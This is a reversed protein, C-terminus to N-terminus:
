QIIIGAYVNVKKRYPRRKLKQDCLFACYVRLAANHGYLDTTGTSNKEFFSSSTKRVNVTRHLASATFSANEKRECFHQLQQQKEWPINNTGM